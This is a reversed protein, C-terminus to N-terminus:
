HDLKRKKSSSQSWNIKTIMPDPKHVFAELDDILQDATSACILMRRSNESIFNQEVAKDLFTLLSDYYNNINLLGVPKNHINLQAWSVTHFIEELTGFGGPLAIFADSNEIMKTIREYMSSVKLEEGITVGTINGEALATPIIGLVQSGGLHASTSVSGMLGINGGGYVLHIKREALIKGLKNAAEVFVENKGPSSGCFVCINKLTQTSSGAM